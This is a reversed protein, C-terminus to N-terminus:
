NKRSNGDIFWERKIGTLTIAFIFFMSVLSSIAAGIESFYFIFCPAIIFYFLLNLSAVKSLFFTNEYYYFYNSFALYLGQFVYSLILIYCVTYNLSYDSNVLFSAIYPLIVLYFLPLVLSLVCQALLIVRLERFKGKSIFDFVYSQFLKNFVALLVSIPLVLQVAVSYNGVLNSSVFFILVFKDFHQKIVNSIQHILVPITFGLFDRFNNFDVTFMLEKKRILFASSIYAFVLSLLLSLLRDDIPQDADVLYYTFALSSLAFISQAVLYRVGEKKIIFISLQTLILSQFLGIVVVVFIYYNEDYFQYLGSIFTLLILLMLKIIYEYFRISRFINIHKTYYVGIASPCGFNFFVVCISIAGMYISLQGYQSPTMVNTLMPLLVLPLSKVILEALSIAGTNIIVKKM